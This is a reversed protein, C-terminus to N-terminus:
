SLITKEVTEPFHKQELAHIKEAITEVTDNEDITTAFQALIRGKDFEENVLHITIGSEEEKAELVATHVFNGYMGKGGFKPLLAPHVNIIHDQYGNILNVPIKRLFGALVIWNIARYDLEQLLTLGNEVEDNSVLLVEVGLARAKEVVPAQERNCVLVAVNVEPHQAFYRILNVANTGTGSAFIAVNQKM